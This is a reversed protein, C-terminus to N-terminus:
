FFVVGIIITAVFLSGWLVTTLGALYGLGLLNAFRDSPDGIFWAAVMAYVPLLVIGFILYTGPGVFPLTYEPSSALPVAAPGSALAAVASAALPTM